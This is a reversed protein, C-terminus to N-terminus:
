RRVTDRRICGRGKEPSSFAVFVAAPAAAPIVSFATRCLAASQVDAAGAALLRRQPPHPPGLIRGGAVLVTVKKKKRQLNETFFKMTGAANFFRGGLHTSPNPIIVDSYRDVWEGM